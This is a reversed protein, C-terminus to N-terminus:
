DFILVLILNNTLTRITLVLAVKFTNSWDLPAIPSKISKRFRSNDRTVVPLICSFYLILISNMQIVM